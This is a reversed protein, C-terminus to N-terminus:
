KIKSTLQKTLDRFQKSSCALDESKTVLIKTKVINEKMQDKPTIKYKWAFPLMQARKKYIEEKSLESKFCHCNNYIYSFMSTFPLCM